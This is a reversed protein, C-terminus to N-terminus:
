SLCVKFPKMKRGTPKVSIFDRSLLFPRREQKRDFPSQKELVKDIDFTVFMKKDEDVAENYSRSKRKGTYITADHLELIVNKVEFGEWKQIIICLSSSMFANLELM